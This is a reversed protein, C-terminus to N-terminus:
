QRVPAAPIRHANLASTVLERRMIWRVLGGSHARTPEVRHFGATAFMRTTGVFALASSISSCDADGYRIPHAHQLEIANWKWSIRHQFRRCGCNLEKRRRCTTKRQTVSNKHAAVAPAVAVRM